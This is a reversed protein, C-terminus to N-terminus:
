SDTDMSNIPRYSTNKMFSAYNAKLPLISPWFLLHQQELLGQATLSTGECSRLTLTQCTTLACLNIPEMNTELFKSIKIM